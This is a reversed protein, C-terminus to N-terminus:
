PKRAKYEGIAKELERMEECPLMCISKLSALHKEASAVDGVLLYAEGIYEHAGRHRPDFQLAKRYHRFAGDYDKAQRLAYGLSNQM